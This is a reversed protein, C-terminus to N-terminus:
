SAEFSFLDGVLAGALLEVMLAISAGKYGGFALQAGSLAATPDTTPNGDADIAWGEPIAHGDRQHLMIEGRASASSAQDFVLPPRGDRPWAFAMPNTGYLPKVGGAPAVYRMAAVYAFAVLGEDALAEVEPWLAAFHYSNVIAQAAIGQEKALKVLPARGVELALPAFGGDADVQLVSPAIATVTPSGHANVKGSKVSALYGPVRFLGHSKCEDREAATVIDAVARSQPESVGNNIFAATALEHVETLNLRVVDNVGNEGNRKYKAAITASTLVFGGSGGRNRLVDHGGSDM